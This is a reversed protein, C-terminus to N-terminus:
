TNTWLEAIFERKNNLAEAVDEEVTGECKLFYYHQPKTQGVRRIRGMAQKTTSYSYNYSVSLFYCIHQLNLAESGSLYHCLVIDDKGTTEPTPIEHKEGDIRWVKRGLKEALELIQERECRYNYFIVIPASFSSSSLSELLDSIFSLKDKTMCMQRLYHLLAMNSDLFEGDLTTSTKLVKKYGKPTPLKIIQKTAAPLQSMVSSADPEYAMEKWWRKLTDEHLYGRIMPFPYTQTICFERMFATKNRVRGDAIFYACHDLWTDGPTATFGAWNKCHKTILLFAKGMQTTIGKAKQTEDACFVYQSLEEYSKTKVWKYLMHWSVCELATLSAKFKPSTFKAIDDDFGGSAVKSATTAIIVHTPHQEELWKVMVASKGVGCDARIIRKGALLQKVAERQFPFLSATM